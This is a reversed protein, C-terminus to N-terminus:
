NLDKVGLLKLKRHLASREMGVFRATKSINGSFKKLQTILYEKEFNERAERLPYDLTESISFKDSENQSLSEKIINLVDDENKGQSLITVREILNRLERVNGPWSYNLLYNNDKLKFPKFNYSTCINKVFYDALQPIDEIRKNLPEITINFVNLRHFLDERFNGNKIEKKIDRSTSSFIRVNVKIDHSGNIRKFKQDILIRLIKSQIDLPIDTVEDLLLIGGTAKELAGYLISGDHKEEGLLELQYKDSDLLAGNLIIFPKDNRKSKKYITRAILEKGTGTPGSIFVRSDSDSVKDIQEKISAINNSKGILDFTHFIKSEL